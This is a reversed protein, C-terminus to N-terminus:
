FHSNIKTTLFFDKKKRFFISLLLINHNVGRNHKNKLGMANISLLFINFHAKPIYFYVLLIIFFIQILFIYKIQGYIM